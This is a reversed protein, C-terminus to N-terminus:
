EQKQIGMESVVGAAGMMSFATALQQCIKHRVAGPVPSLTVRGEWQSCPKGPPAPPLSGEQWLLLCLLHLNSGQTLFIGQRLFHCGVGSSKGAFNWPSLLRGPLRCDMSDCLTLCSQAVESESKLWVFYICDNLLYLSESFNTIQRLDAGLYSCLIWAM